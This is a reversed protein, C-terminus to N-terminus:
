SGRYYGNDKKKENNKYGRFDIMIKLTVVLQLFNIVFLAIFLIYVPKLPLDFHIEDFTINDLKLDSIEMDSVNLSIPPMPPFSM